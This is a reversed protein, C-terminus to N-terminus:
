LWYLKASGLVRELRRLRIRWESVFSAKPGAVRGGFRQALVRDREGALELFNLLRLFQGPLSFLRLTHGFPATDVVIKAYRRSDVASQIALLAAIESMGPLTTELLGAIEERAFFSGSAITEILEVRHEDLFERFLAASDLEWVRLKSRAGLKVDAPKTALRTELVDGISHAPDTSILLVPKPSKGSAARVAYAASM